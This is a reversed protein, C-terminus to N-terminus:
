LMRQWEGPAKCRPEIIRRCGSCLCRTFGFGRCFRGGFIRMAFVQILLFLHHNFFGIEFLNAFPRDWSVMSGSPDIPCPNGLRYRWFHPSAQCVVRFQLIFIFLFLFPLYLQVISKKQLTILWGYLFTFKFYTSNNSMRVVRLWIFDSYFFLNFLYAM